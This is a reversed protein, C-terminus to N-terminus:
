VWVQQRAAETLTTSLDNGYAIQCVPIGMVELNTAIRGTGLSGGFSAADLL